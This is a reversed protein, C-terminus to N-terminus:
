VRRYVEEVYGRRVWSRERSLRKFDGKELVMAPTWVQPVGNIPSLAEQNYSFFIGDLIKRMLDIYGGVIEEPMEPFSDQNFVCDFKRNQLFRDSNVPLICIKRDGLEGARLVDSFLAVNKRGFMNAIFWGQFVNMLALDYIAYQQVNMSKMLWYATGGFGAGIELVTPDAHNIYRQVNTKLRHAAYIHGSSENTVLRGGISIGYSKFVHPFDITIGLEKEIDRVLIEAGNYFAYGIEGQEPCETRVVGLYEALSVLSELISFAFFLNQNTPKFLDASSIGRLSPQQFMNELYNLLAENDRSKLIELLAKSHQSIIHSWLNGYHINGRDLELAKHFSSLLDLAIEKKKEIDTHHTTPPEWIPYEPINADLYFWEVRKLFTRNVHKIFKNGLLMKLCARQIYFLKDKEFNSKSKKLYEKIFKGM